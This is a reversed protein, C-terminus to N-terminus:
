EAFGLLAVLRAIDRLNQIEDNLFKPADAEKNLNKIYELWYKTIALNELIKRKGRSGEDLEIIETWAAYGRGKFKDIEAEIKPRIGKIRQAGRYQHVLSNPKGVGSLNDGFGVYITFAEHNSNRGMVFRYVVPIHEKKSYDWILIRSNGMQLPKWSLFFGKLYEAVAEYDDWNLSM